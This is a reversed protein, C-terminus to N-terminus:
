AAGGVTFPELDTRGSDDIRSIRYRGPAKADARAAVETECVYKGDRWCLNRADWTALKFYPYANAARREHPKM